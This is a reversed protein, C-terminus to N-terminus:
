KAAPPARGCDPDAPVPSGVEAVPHLFLHRWVSEHLFEGAANKASNNGPTISNHARTADGKVDFATTLRRNNGYPPAVHDVDVIPGYRHLGLM